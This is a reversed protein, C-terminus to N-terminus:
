EYKDMYGKDELNNILQDDFSQSCICYNTDPKTKLKKKKYHEM